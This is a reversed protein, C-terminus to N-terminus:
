GVERLPYKLFYLLWYHQEKFEDTRVASVCLCLSFPCQAIYQWKSFPIPCFTEVLVHTVLTLGAM